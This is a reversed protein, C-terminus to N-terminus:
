LLRGFSAQAAGLWAALSGERPLPECEAIEVYAATSKLEIGKASLARDVGATTMADTSEVGLLCLIWGELKPMPVGPVIELQYKFETAFDYSALDALVDRIAPELQADGDSDRIFVLLECAEEYAALILGLVNRVDDRDARKLAAGARYKRISKWQRAGVVQWGTAQVRRLLVEAVGPDEGMPVRGRTGIDNAGEGGLFVKIM